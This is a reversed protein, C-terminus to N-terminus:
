EKASAKVLRTFLERFDVDGERDMIKKAMEWYTKHLMIPKTEYDSMAMDQSAQGIDVERSGTDPNMAAYDLLKVDLEYYAAIKDRNKGRPASAGREWSSITTLPIKTDKAVQSLTLERQKRANRLLTKIEIMKIESKNKRENGYDTNKRVDVIHSAKNGVQFVAGIWVDGDVDVETHM